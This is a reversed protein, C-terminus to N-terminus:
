PTLPLKITFTTGKNVQSTFSIEGGHKQKISTYAMSLGQGTGKGVDKTTFFPDFIKERIESPIGAGNDTVNIVACNKELKTKIHILGIHEPFRTKREQIAHTANIILNMLVQNIDAIFCPVNQIDPDFETDIHTINKWENHCVTITSEIAKHLDAPMRKEKGIHSFDKMANVIKSVRSLGEQIQQLATPLEEGLFNFDYEQEIQKIKEEIDPQNQDGANEFLMSRYQTVIKMIDTIGSSVFQTNDGIFQIPTNIEHAIGAALIGISELKKALQLDKELILREKEERKRIKIEKKLKATTARLEETRSRVENELQEHYRQLIHEAQKRETIDHFIGLIGVSNGEDDKIPVKITQVIAMTENQTWSEEIKSVKGAKMIRLDDEKHKQAINPPYFDFDTKGEIEKKNINLDDAYYKNCTIYVLNTDKYFIRYPINEILMKYKQESQKITKNKQALEENQANLTTTSANIQDLMKNFQTAFFGLEDKSKISARVTTNGNAYEHLVATLKKIPITISRIGMFLVFATVACTIISILTMQRKHKLFNDQLTNWAWYISSTEQNNFSLLETILREYSNKLDLPTTKSASSNLIEDIRWIYLSFEKNIRKLIEQNKKTDLKKLNLQHIYEKIIVLNDKIEVSKALKKEKQEQNLFSNTLISLHQAKFMTNQVLSRIESKGIVTEYVLNSLTGIQISSLVAITLVLILLATFGSVFKVTVSSLFFRSM